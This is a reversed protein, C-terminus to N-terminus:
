EKFQKPLEMWAVIEEEIPLLHYMQTWEGDYTAVMMDGYENQILYAKEVNGIYESPKPTRKKCSIWENM